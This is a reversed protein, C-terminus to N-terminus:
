KPDDPRSGWHDGDHSILILEGTATVCIGRRRASHRGAPRTRAVVVGALGPRALADADPVRDDAARIV